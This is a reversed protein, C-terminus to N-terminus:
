VSVRLLLIKISLYCRTILYHCQLCVKIVTIKKNWNSRIILIIKFDAIIENEFIVTMFIILSLCFLVVCIILIYFSMCRM